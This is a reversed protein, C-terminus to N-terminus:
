KVPIIRPTISMIIESEVIQTKTGGALFDFLLGILPLDSLIPLHTKTIREEEKKLGSMINTEGDKLRIITQASRKGMEPINNTASVKGLSTIEATLDITIENNNRHIVPTINFKIGIDFFQIQTTTYATPTGTTTNIQTTSIQVPVQDTIAVQAKQRDLVRINPTAVVKVNSTTQLFKILAPFSEATLGTYRNDPLLQNSSLEYKLLESGIENNKEKSVEIIKLEVMVQPSNNDLDKVLTNVEENVEKSAVSILINRKEESFMKFIQQQQPHKAGIVPQLVPILKVAELYELNFIRIENKKYFSIRNFPAIIFTDDTVKVAELGNIALATEMAGAFPLDKVSFSPIIKSLPATEDFILNVKGQQAMTTFLQKLSASNYQATILPENKFLQDEAFSYAFCITLVLATRLILKM